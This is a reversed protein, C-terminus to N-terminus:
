SVTAGGEGPHRRAAKWRNLKVPPLKGNSRKDMLRKGGFEDEVMDTQNQPPLMGGEFRVGFGDGRGGDIVWREAGNRFSIRICRSALFAELKPNSDGDRPTWAQVLSKPVRRYLDITEVQVRIAERLKRRGEPRERDAALTRILAAADEAGFERRALIKQRALGAEEQAAERRSKVDVIESALEQVDGVTKAMEVLKKLQRGLDAAVAEKAELDVKLHHLEANRGSTLSSWDLDVLYSLVLRELHPYRWTFIPADTHVRRHDSVVYAWEAMRETSCHDRFWMAFEPHDGDRLLGQFLNLALDRRPGHKRHGRNQVRLFTKEDIVAPYYGKVPDGTPRREEGRGSHPVFEGLVRRSHLIKQIYSYHWARARNRREGWVPAKDLHRNFLRSIRGKGWGRLTLWFILRVIKAREPILEYKKRNASLRLWGPCSRTMPRRDEIALKKKQAWVEGLRNSLDASYKHASWLAGLSIFLQGMNTNITERSYWQRDILTVVTIGAKLLTTFLDLATLLDERGLRDFAEVVLVSGAPVRGSEVLKIFVGLAGVKRHKGRFGSMAEDYFQRSQELDLNNERCFRVTAEWQRRWSDGKRQEPSSFRIYSYALRRRM